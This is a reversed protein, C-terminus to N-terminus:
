IKSEWIHGDGDTDESRLRRCVIRSLTFEKGFLGFDFNIIKFHVVAREFDEVVYCRNTLCFITKKM